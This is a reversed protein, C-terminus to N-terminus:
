VVDPGDISVVDFVQHGNELADLGLRSSARHDDMNDGLFAVTVGIGFSGGVLIM